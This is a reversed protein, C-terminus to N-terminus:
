LFGGARQRYAPKPWGRQPYVWLTETDKEGGARLVVGNGSLELLRVLVDVPLSGHETCWCELDALSVMGNKLPVRPRDALARSSASGGAGDSGCGICVLTLVIPLSRIM